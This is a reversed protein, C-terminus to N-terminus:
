RRSPPPPCLSTPSAALCCSRCSDRRRPHPHPRPPVLPGFLVRPRFIAPGTRQSATWAGSCSASRPRRRACANKGFGASRKGGPHCRRLLSLPSHWRRHPPLPMTAQRSSTNTLLGIHQPNTHSHNAPIPVRIPLSDPLTPCSDMGYGPGAETPCLTGQAAHPPLPVPRRLWAAM